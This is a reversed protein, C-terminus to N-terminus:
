PPRHNAGPQNKGTRGFSKKKVTRLRANLYRLTQKASAHLPDQPNFLAITFGSHVLVTNTMCTTGSPWGNHIRLPNLLNGPM